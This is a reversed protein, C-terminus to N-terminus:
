LYVHLNMYPFILDNTQSNWLKRTQEAIKRIALIKNKVLCEFMCVSTVTYFVTINHVESRFSDISLLKVKLRGKFIEM